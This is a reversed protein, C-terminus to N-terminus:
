ISEAINRDWKKCSSRNHENGLVCHAHPGVLPEEKHYYICAEQIIAQLVILAVFGIWSWFPMWSLIRPRNHCKKFHLIKAQSKNTGFIDTM